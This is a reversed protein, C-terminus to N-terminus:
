TYDKESVEGAALNGRDITQLSLPVLTSTLVLVHVQKEEHFEVALRQLWAMKTVETTPIDEKDLGYLQVCKRVGKFRSLRGVRKQLTTIIEPFYKHAEEFTVPGRM